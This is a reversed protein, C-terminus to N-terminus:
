AVKRRSAEIYKGLLDAIANIGASGGAILGATLVIDTARFAYSQETGTSALSFLPALVRVGVASVILAFVFGLRLRLEAQRREVKAQEETATDLAAVGTRDSVERSRIEGNLLKIASSEPSLANLDGSRVAELMLSERLGKELELGKRMFELETRARQVKIEAKQRQEGLWIDNIVALSREVLLTIVILSTLLETVKTFTDGTPRAPSAGTLVAVALVSCCALIWLHRDITM